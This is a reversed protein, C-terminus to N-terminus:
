KGALIGVLWDVRNREHALAERLTHVDTTGRFHTVLADAMAQGVEAPVTFTPSAATAAELKEWSYVDPAEKIQLLQEDGGIERLVFLKALRGFHDEVVHVRIM